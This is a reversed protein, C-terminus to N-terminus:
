WDMIPRALAEDLCSMFGNLFSLLAPRCAMRPLNGLGQFVWAEGFVGSVMSAVLSMCIDVGALNPVHQRAVSDSVSHELELVLFLSGSLRGLDNM